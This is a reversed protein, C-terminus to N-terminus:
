FRASEDVVIKKKISQAGRKLLTKRKDKEKTIQIKLSDAVADISGEV